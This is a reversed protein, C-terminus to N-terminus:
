MGLKQLNWYVPHSFKCMAQQCSKAKERQEQVAPHL